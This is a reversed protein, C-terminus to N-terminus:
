VVKLFEELSVDADKLIKHFLWSGVDRSTDLLTVRARPSDRKMTVHSGKRHHEYFGLKQLAKLIERGSYIGARTM